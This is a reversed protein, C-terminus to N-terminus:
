VSTRARDCTEWNRSVPTFIYL